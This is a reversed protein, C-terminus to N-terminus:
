RVGVHAEVGSSLTRDKQAPGLGLSPGRQGYPHPLIWCHSPPRIFPLSHRPESLREIYPDRSAYKGARGPDKASPRGSYQNSFVLDRIHLASSSRQTQTATYYM